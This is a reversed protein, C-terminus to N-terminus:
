RSSEGSITKIYDFLDLKTVGMGRLREANRAQATKTNYDPILPVRVTIRDPGAQDLLRRLNAEMLAEEGGTYRHYIEPDMDKCDVIFADVVDAAAHVTEEPVALGTEAYIRWEPPCIERFRRIFETHLLSEGGGFTIGGGTARFYLDDIKVREFLEAATVPTPRVEQLVRRNICWRCHLPCGASAVLTTVGEGDIEMRLRSVNLLPYTIENM